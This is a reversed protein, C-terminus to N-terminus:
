RSTSGLFPFVRKGCGHRVSIGYVFHIKNQGLRQIETKCINTRKM